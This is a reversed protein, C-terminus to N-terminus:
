SYLAHDTTLSSSKYDSLELKFYTKSGSFHNIIIIIIIIIITTTITIVIIMIMIMITIMTMIMIKIKIIIMMIRHSLMGAM